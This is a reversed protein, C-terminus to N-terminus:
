SRRVEWTLDWAEEIGTGPLMVEELHLVEGWSAILLDSMLLAAHPGKETAFGAVLRTGNAPVAPAYRTLRPANEAWPPPLEHVTRLADEIVPAPGLALVLYEYETDSLDYATTFSLHSAIAAAVCDYGKPDGFLGVSRPNCLPGLKVPRPATRGAPTAKAAALGAAQATARIQASAAKQAATRTSSTSNVAAKAAKAATAYGAAIVSAAQANTLTRMVATHLYASEGKYAYQLRGAVQVHRMYDAYVRQQLAANQHALRSQRFSQQVAFAAIAAARAQAHKAAVKKRLSYVASLRAQRLNQAALAQYAKSASATYAANYAQWQAASLQLGSVASSTGTKKPAATKATVTSKPAM